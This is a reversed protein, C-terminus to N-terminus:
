KYGTRLNWRILGGFWEKKLSDSVNNVWLLKGYESNLGM